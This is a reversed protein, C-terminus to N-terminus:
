VFHCLTRHGDIGPIFGCLQPKIDAEVATRGQPLPQGEAGRTPLYDVSQREASATDFFGRDGGQPGSASPSVSPSNATRDKGGVVWWLGLAVLVAIAAVTVLVVTRRLRPPEAGVSSIEQTASPTVSNAPPGDWGSADPEPGKDISEPVPSGEENPSELIAPSSADDEVAPPGTEAHTDTAGTVQETDRPSDDLDEIDIRMGIWPLAEEQIPQSGAHAILIRRGAGSASALAKAEELDFGGGQAVVVVPPGVPAVNLVDSGTVLVADFWGRSAAARGAAFFLDDSLSDVHDM